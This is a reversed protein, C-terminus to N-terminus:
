MKEVEQKRGQAYWGILNTLLMFFSAIASIALIIFIFKFSPYTFYFFASIFSSWVGFCWPCTLLKYITLKFSNTSNIYEYKGDINKLDMFMERLFLTINDYIFLRVLRFNAFALILIDFVSVGFDAPRFSLFIAYLFLVLLVFFVSAIINWMKVGNHLKLEAETM